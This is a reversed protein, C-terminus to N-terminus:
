RSVVHQSDSDCDSDLSEPVVEVLYGTSSPISSVIKKKFEFNFNSLPRKVGKKLTGFTGGDIDDYFGIFILPHLVTM